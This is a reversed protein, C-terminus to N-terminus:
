LVTMFSEQLKQDINMQQAVNFPCSLYLKLVLKYTCINCIYTYRNALSLLFPKVLLTGIM